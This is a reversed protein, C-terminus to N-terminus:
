SRMRSPNKRPAGTPRCSGEWAAATTDPGSTTTAQNPTGNKAPITINPPTTKARTYGSLAVPTLQDGYPLSTYATACGSAGIEVRKTDLWDTLEFVTDNSAGDYTAILQGAAYVNTHIWNGNGDIETLQEGSPGIVYTNTLMFGNNPVGNSNLSSDCSWSSITGKAVRAGEADYLYGTMLGGVGAIPIQYM